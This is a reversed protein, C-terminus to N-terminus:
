KKNVKPIFSTSTNGYKDSKFSINYMNNVNNKYWEYGKKYTKKNINSLTNNDINNKLHNSYYQRIVKHTEIEGKAILISADKMEKKQFKNLTKDKNITKKNRIYSNTINSIDKKTYKKTLRDIKKYMKKRGKLTLSGDSNQYRRIGWKMGLVGHHYLEDTYNYQWM